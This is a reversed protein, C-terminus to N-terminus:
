NMNHTHIYTEKGKQSYQVPSWSDFSAYKKKKKERAEEEHPM